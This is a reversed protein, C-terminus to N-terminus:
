QANHETIKNRITFLAYRLCQQAMKTELQLRHNLIKGWVITYYSNTFSNFWLQIVTPMLHFQWGHIKGNFFANCVREVFTELAARFEQYLQANPFKRDNVLSGRSAWQSAHSAPMKNYKNHFRILKFNGKLILSSSLRTGLRPVLNPRAQRSSSGDYPRFVHDRIQFYM